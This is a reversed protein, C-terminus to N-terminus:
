HGALPAPSRRFARLTFAAWAILAADQLIVWASLGQGLYAGFRTGNDLALGRAYAQATLVLYAVSVVVALVSSREGLRRDRRLAAAILGVGGLMEAFTWAAAVVRLLGERFVRFATLAVVYGEPDALKGLGMALLLVGLALATIRAM